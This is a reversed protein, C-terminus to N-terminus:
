VPSSPSSLSPMVIQFLFYEHFRDDKTLEPHFTTLMLHDQRLAVILRPDDKQPLTGEEDQLPFAEPAIKAL